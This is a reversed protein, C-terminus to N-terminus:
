SRLAEFRVAPSDDALGTNLVALGADATVRAGGATAAHMAVRRVQADPDKAVQRLVDDDMAAASILADLALRRVRAGTAAEGSGPTALRRLLTLAEDGPARLKRQIRVLAELGKAVGLRDTVSEARAAM